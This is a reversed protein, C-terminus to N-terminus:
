GEFRDWRDRKWYKLLEGDTTSALCIIRLTPLKAAITGVEQKRM